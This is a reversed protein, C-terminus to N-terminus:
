FSVQTEFPKPTTSSADTKQEVPATGGEAIAHSQEVSQSLGLHDPNEQAVVPDEQGVISAAAPVDGEPGDLESDQMFVLGPDGSKRETEVMISGFALGLVKGAHAGQGTVVIEDSDVSENEDSQSDQANHKDRAQPPSILQHIMERVRPDVSPPDAGRSTDRLSGAHSVGSELFFMEM